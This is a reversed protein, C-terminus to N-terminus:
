AVCSNKRKILTKKSHVIRFLGNSPIRVHITGKGDDCADTWTGAARDHAPERGAAVVDGHQGAIALAQGDSSLLDDLVGLGIAQSTVSSACSSAASAATRRSMPAGDTRTCLATPPAQPVKRSM